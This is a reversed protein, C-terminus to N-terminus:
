SGTTYLRSEQRRLFSLPGDVVFGYIDGSQLVRISQVSINGSPISILLEIGQAETDGHSGGNLMMCETIM